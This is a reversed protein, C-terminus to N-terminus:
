IAVTKKCSYIQGDTRNRREQYATLALVSAVSSSCFMRWAFSRASRSSSFSCFRSSEDSPMFFFSTSASTLLPGGAQPVSRPDQRPPMHAVTVWRQVVPFFWCFWGKSINSWVAKGEAFGKSVQSAQFHKGWLPSPNTM